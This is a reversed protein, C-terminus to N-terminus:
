SVIVKLTEKNPLLLEPRSRIFWSNAVIFVFTLLHYFHVQYQLSHLAAKDKEELM